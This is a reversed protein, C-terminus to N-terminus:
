FRIFRWPVSFDLVPLGNDAIAPNLRPANSSLLIGRVKNDHIYHRHLMPVTQFKEEAIALLQEITATVPVGELRHELNIAIIGRLGSRHIQDIGKKLASEVQTIKESTVRKVAIGVRETRFDFQLDPEAGWTEIGGLCLRAAVILEFEINRSSRDRGEKVDPGRVVQELRQKDFPSNKFECQTSAFVILFLEWATRHLAIFHAAEDKNMDIVKSVRTQRLQDLFELANTARCRDPVHIGRSRLLDIAWKLREFLSNADLAPTKKPITWLTRSYNM